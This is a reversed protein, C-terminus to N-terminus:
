MSNLAKREDWFHGIHRFFYERLFNHQKFDVDGDLTMLWFDVGSHNETVSYNRFPRSSDTPTFTSLKTMRLLLETVFLHPSGCVM